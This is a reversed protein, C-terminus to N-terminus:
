KSSEAQEQDRQIRVARSDGHSSLDDVIQRITVRAEPHLQDISSVEQLWDVLLWCQNALRDGADETLSDIWELGSSGQWGPEGTRILQVAADVCLPWGHARALWREVLEGISAPNIWEETANRETLDMRLDGATVQPHPVLHALARETHFHRSGLEAGADLADLVTTMVRPWVIPLKVRMPQEYTAVELLSQLLNQLAATNEMLAGLQRVLPESDGGAALSFVASAASHMHDRQSRRLFYRPDQRLAARAHADLVVILTRKADGAICCNSSAADSLALLPAGLRPLNIADASLNQLATLVRGRLKVVPRRGDRGRPGLGCDRIGTEVAQLAVRHFCTRMLGAKACEAQWTEKLAEATNRRVELYPSTLCAMLGDSVRRRGPIGLTGKAALILLAPMAAAASRDPGMIYMSAEVAFWENSKRFACALLLSSAWGAESPDLDLKGDSYALIASAAVAASGVLMDASDDSPNELVSRGHALDERITKSESRRNELHGYTYLLHLHKEVQKMKQDQSEKAAALEKPLQVEFAIRGDPLREFRYNDPDFASAWNAVTILSDVKYDRSDDSPDLGPISQRAKQMLRRGREILSEIREQESKVLSSTMQLTVAEALTKRRSEIWIADDADLGQIHLHGENAIRDFELYWVDPQSLWIDLEDHLDDLHRVLLGVVLGPMALNHCGRLLFESVEQLQLGADLLDDAFREVALLASVCPVPGVSSGRYWRWVHSDGACTRQGIGPLELDRESKDKDLGVNPDPYSEVQKVRALAAHDLIRNITRVGLNPDASLLHTFPGYQWSALPDMLGRGHNVHSRIDDEFMPNEQQWPDDENPLVIYYAETLIALLAPSHRVLSLVAFTPEVAPSLFGPASAAVSRLWQEVSEDLDRGLLALAQVTFEDHPEPDQALLSVRLEGRLPNAEESYLLLGRLWELTLDQIQEAVEYGASSQLAVWDGCILSMLPRLAAPQAIEASVYRQRAIRILARLGERDGECLATWARSLAGELLLTAELPLEAWREGESAAIREFRKEAALRAQESAEGAAALASMCALRAARLAWRPAGCEQLLEYGERLFLRVLAFDRVLDSAFQDGSQWTSTPGAPLLLGDSRLSPLAGASVSAGRDGPVLQCRALAILAQEREDPSAGGIPTSEGRRVLGSWVAAYVDAESLAGDGFQYDMETKLLLEVLGLRGLLWRSRPDEAIRDLATFAGVVQLIEAPRLEEALHRAPQIATESTAESARRLADTVAKEGDIRTVAVVGLGADIAAAAVDQLLEGRGELAAEAGDVLLLRASRVEAGGLIETVSAGLIHELDLITPPLDRLNIAVFESDSQAALFARFLPRNLPSSASQDPAIADIRRTSSHFSPYPRNRPDPQGWLQREPRM